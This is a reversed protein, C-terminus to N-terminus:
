RGADTEDPFSDGLCPQCAMVPVSVALQAAALYKEMGGLPTVCAQRICPTDSTGCGSAAVCYLLKWCDATCASAASPRADCLCEVCGRQVDFGSSAELAVQDCQPPPMVTPPESAGEGSRGGRGSTSGDSGSASGRGSTGGSGGEPQM